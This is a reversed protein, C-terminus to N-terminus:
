TITWPTVTGTVGGVTRIKVASARAMQKPTYIAFTFGLNQPFEADSNDDVFTLAGINRYSTYDDFSYFGRATGVSTLEVIVGDMPEAVTLATSLAVPTGLTVLALGPWVPAAVTPLLATGKWADFQDKPFVLVWWCYSQVTDPYAYLTGNQQSVYTWGYGPYVRDVWDNPTADTPLITTPDLAALPYFDGGYPYIPNLVYLKLFPQFPWSQGQPPMWNDVLMWLNQLATGSEDGAPLAYAWVADAVDSVVPGGYGAPPVTPLIVPNTAQQAAAIQVLLDNYQLTALAANTDITSRLAANSVTGSLQVALLVQTAADIEFPLHEVAVGKTQGRIIGLITLVNAIQSLIEGLIALM